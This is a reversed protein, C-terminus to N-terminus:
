LIIVYNYLGKGKRGGFGEMYGKKNKQLNLRTMIKYMYTYIGLFIFVVQETQM